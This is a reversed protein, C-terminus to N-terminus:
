DVDALRGDQRNLIAKLAELTEQQEDITRQQAITYLTLEEVKELLRMQMQNVSIPGVLEEASPVNPLHRERSIFEELEDIPMLEYEPAFVYDPACPTPSSCTTTFIDGTLRLNGNGDLKFEQAGTGSKSIVFEGTLATNTFQWYFPVNTNKLQFAVSGPRELRVVSNGIGPPSTGSNVDLPAQPNATGIGVRDNEVFMTGDAFARLPMAAILVIGLGVIKASVNM